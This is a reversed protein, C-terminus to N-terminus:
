NFLEKTKSFFEALHDKSLRKDKKIKTYLTKFIYFRPFIYFDVKVFVVEQWQTNEKCYCYNIIEQLVLPM